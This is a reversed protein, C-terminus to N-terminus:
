ILNLSRPLVEHESDIIGDNNADIEGLSTGGNHQSQHDHPPQRQLQTQPQHKLTRPDIPPQSLQSLGLPGPADEEDEHVAEVERHQHQEAESRDDEQEDYNEEHSTAEDQKRLQAFRTNCNPNLIPNCQTSVLM